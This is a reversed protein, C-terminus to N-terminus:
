RSRRARTLVVAGGGVVVLIAVVLVVTGGSGTGSDGDSADAVTPVASEVPTLTEVPAATTGVDTTSIAAAPVETTATTAATAATTPTATTPTVTATTTVEPVTTAPEAGPPPTTLLMAPAPEDLETGSDDAPIDIWAIEGVECRQVFPFHITTGAAAPLVMRVRFTGEVDDPLPGGVFTVVGGDVSGTWGDLPEPQVDSVGDPLRMRLEVTASGSCGHEVTFGVSQQTGAPAESPDPDIHAFAPTAIAVAVASPIGLAFRHFISM